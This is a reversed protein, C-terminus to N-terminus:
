AGKEIVEDQSLFYFALFSFEWSFPLGTDDVCLLPGTLLLAAKVPVISAWFTTVTDLPFSPCRCAVSVVQGWSGKGEVIFNPFVWCFAATSAWTSDTWPFGKLELAGEQSTVFVLDYQWAATKALWARCTTSMGSVLVPVGLFNANFPWCNHWICGWDTGWLPVTGWRLGVQPGWAAWPGGAARM